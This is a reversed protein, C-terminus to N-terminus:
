TFSLIANLVANPTLGFEKGLVPGPASAGYHDIGLSIGKSGIYKEWGLTVGAEVSIRKGVRAPLVSEKYSESQIEFLDWSPMSVVRVSIGREAAQKAGDIAIHLESGTAIVITDPEPSSEWITYAGYALNSAPPYSNRDLVPLGQRSLALIVPKERQSIAVKWAEATETADAPRILSLNPVLRASMLHEIPQHTPGDEGLLVSDHTFIFVVRKNMLAALRVAPRMYDYFVLFTATYPIVGGHVAMGNAISGMSHERVGFQLNINPSDFGFDGRSKIMSNNSPALDASGGILNHITGALANLAVGSAVRTAISKGKSDEDNFLKLLPADWGEPLDGSLDILMQKSEVPFAKQYKSFAEEWKLFESAGREESRRMHVSVPGPITFPESHQWGLAKKTAIVEEPGLPSGHSDATGSKNPSGHGITTTCVILSPKKSEAKADNLAADIIELNTGDIPGIVQWGYSIFRAAVDENFTSSVNGEISIGNSDYLYILKGLGNAGAFSAAESSIGEELDGDSVITYTYHNIIEHGKKNYTESLWREALAMGVGNAFGQGLPGTTTEVGPTIGIEPHGPTKSGWQRFNKLDELSLDYGTLHLLSYLLMSAHGASLIFRDRNVWSPNQPSHKLHKTWLVYALPAAGMPAGPHGSKAKEVADVALFRITNVCLDDIDIATSM